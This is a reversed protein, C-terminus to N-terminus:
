SIQHTQKYYGLTKKFYFAIAGRYTMPSSSVRYHDLDDISEYIDKLLGNDSYKKQSFVYGNKINSFMIEM